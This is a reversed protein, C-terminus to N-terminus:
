AWAGTAPNTPVLRPRFENKKIWARAVEFRAQTSLGSEKDTLFAFLDAEGERYAQQEEYSRTM